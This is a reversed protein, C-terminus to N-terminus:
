LKEIEKKEPKSNRMTHGGLSEPDLIRAVALIGYKEVVSHPIVIASGNNKLKNVQALLKKLKKLTLQKM